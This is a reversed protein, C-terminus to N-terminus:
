SYLEIAKIIEDLDNPVQVVQGTPSPQATSAATAWSRTSRKKIVNSHYAVTATPDKLQHGTLICVVRSAPPSSARRASSRPRARWARRPLRPECGLGGASGGQGERQRGPDVPRDGRPGGGGGHDLRGRLAGEPLNM